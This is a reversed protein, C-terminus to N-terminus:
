NAKENNAFESIVLLVKNIDHIIDDNNFRIVTYGLSNLIHTREKDEEIKQKHIGGDLEIVLNLEKSFFDAVFFSDKTLGNFYIPFQRYFKLNNLKRNRLYKWLKVEAPTSNHRLERCTEKVVTILKANKFVSM